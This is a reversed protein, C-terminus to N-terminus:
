CTPLAQRLLDLAQAKRSHSKPLVSPEEAGEAEALAAAMPPPVVAPGVPGVCAPCGRECPCREILRLTRALLTAREEFIRESLGTGGPVHEYLFLTPNYKPGGGTVKKPVLNARGEDDDDTETTPDADGLSTGLDRPDCMLALTASTELAIGIGRLADVAAARGFPLEAIVAEPVTLWFAMTHMQMEPLRVDGYGANEHTYFKIKKYGVVKEVVSVEGFGSPWPPRGVSDQVVPGVGSEELVRIQTYTMADTYYDPEVKRVFAKHNEYDFREVQWCEGDHQYIAQEHLMTHAARWDLEGITKDHEVDVIVVNDSGISRLSVNNAPYSDTAWHFTGNSEHVVEHKALFELAERTEVEALEGFREGRRFPLEFAACKLHQVLVEVNDPDIRAEEIPAGLLYAPDSALYQDLPASSTVLVAISSAGRRGARGFRQWLAAVSGPYSACVVADLDGIDIGLELANTAVVALLEGERLKREIERREGPLYGGRYAMVRSPDVEPAIADRLYRLMVEVSNRSAGFVITPVHARVLDKTLMVAQKVYSARIGLEANVVPPNFLFFRRDGRPAGSKAILEIESEPEGFLRAAHARPNGITATAGIFTPKAGHFAAARKLRRLVNAVHSGFVGRYTHMEDVVVYKLNQMTRAWSAHHPLIGAHLMDPNTLVIGGRERAARRADGPTDGDYVVASGLAPGGGARSAEELLTRVSAEQDRALAKTPFLYLARADRDATLASLVPLHFCLSKGSATPTSVVFSRGRTAADFAQAQHSYLAQIGRQGLAAAIAPPLGEPMPREDSECGPVVEDANFCPRVTKSKLWHDLVPDLGRPTKWPPAPM